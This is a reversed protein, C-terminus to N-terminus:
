QVQGVKTVFINEIEDKVENSITGATEEDLARLLHALLTEREREISLDIAPRAGNRIKIVAGNVLLENGEGFIADKLDEFKENLEGFIPTAGIFQLKVLLMRGESDTNLKELEDSVMPIVDQYNTIKSLDFEMILFRLGDCAVFRPELIAGNEEVEVILAGKPGCETAKTSRGQLNGPYAWYGNSSKHVQRDHIHGLAWYNVNSQELDTASCPAYDGHQSNGGVNTHLVGIVTTGVVSKFLPVLNNPESQSSYSIGAVTVKAGNSMEVIHTTVEGSPFVRVNEPMKSGSLYEASLPDHNGHAMFVKIGADRLQTLGRYFRLQAGPDRDATDYIDGALLVFDVREGIAIDVLNQFARNVLKKANEHLESDVLNGLSQLPSGLHLDAAHLFRAKAM